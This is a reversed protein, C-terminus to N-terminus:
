QVLKIDTFEVLAGSTELHPKISGILGVKKGFMKSFDRGQIATAPVAYCVTKGNADVIRYFQKTVKGEYVKSDRFIGMVVFASLDNISNLREQRQAEIADRQKALEEDQQEMEAGMQKALEYRDIQKIAFDAYKGAKGADENSAIEQM